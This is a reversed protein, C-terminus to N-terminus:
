ILTQLKDLNFFDDYSIQVDVPVGAEDGEFTSDAYWGLHINGSHYYHEGSPLYSESVACEGGGSKVGIISAICNKKLLFPYANGCSFSFESTLIHFNFDNGYVDDNDFKDDGNSDVKTTMKQVMGTLDLQMYMDSTNEKALITIVKNMIGVVGGGNTSIDIIVDEVGGKEKIQNLMKVFYFFTDYNVSNYDSLDEKPTKGDELFAEDAFTFSDFTFFALKGDTSYYVSGPTLSEARAGSLTQRVELMKTLKPGYQNFEGDIWPFSAHDRISTHGDDLLAFTKYYAENRKSTNESLFDTFFDQKELYDKMSKINRTYKLGYLNDMTFLFNSKRDKRLYMPMVPMNKDIYQKMEGFATVEQNDIQYTVNTLQEYESYQLIRQYNFLHYIGSPSAFMAELLSLPFYNIRNKRYVLYGADAYPMTRMATPDKSIEYQTSARLSISTKSYDKEVTFASSFDGNMTAQKQYTNIQAVFIAEDNPQYVAFTSSYVTESVYFYYSDKKYKNCMSVYDSLSLYPLLDNNDFIQYSVTENLEAKGDFLSCVEVEKTKSTIKVNSFFCSSLTLLSLIPLVILKTNRMAKYKYKLCFYKLYSNNKLDKYM